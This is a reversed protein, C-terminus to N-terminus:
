NKEILEIMMRNPLIYFCIRSGFYASQKMPSILIAGIKKLYEGAGEIGNALYAYHYLKIGKNLYPTLTDSEETNQLLEICPQNRATGFKGQIGQLQDVFVTEEFQYGLMQFAVEEKGINRCAIGIHHFELGGSFLRLSRQFVMFRKQNLIGAVKSYFSDKTLYQEVADYAKGDMEVADKLVKRTELGSSSHFAVVAKNDAITRCYLEQLGIKEFAIKYLLYVSEATSMSGPSIVWRGWEAKGDREDYIAILGEPKKDLRNEIVFFYDGERQFYRNIWQEELSVDDPIPHIYRTREKDELRVKIIFQADELKVPRLRYCYGDATYSHKM